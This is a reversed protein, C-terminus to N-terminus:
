EKELAEIRKLLLMYDSKQQEIMEQQEQMAKVLPV